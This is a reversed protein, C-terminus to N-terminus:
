LDPITLYLVNCTIVFRDARRDARLTENEGPPCVGQMKGPKGACEPLGALLGEGHLFTRGAPCPFGRYIRECRLPPGMVPWIPLVM